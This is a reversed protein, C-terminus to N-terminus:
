AKKRNVFNSVMRSHGKMTKEVKNSNSPQLINYGPIVEQEISFTYGEPIKYISISEGNKLSVVATGKKFTVSSMVGSSEYTENVGKSNNYLKITYNATVTQNATVGDQIVNTIIITGTSKWKAKVVGNNGSFKVENEGILSSDGFITWGGFIYGDKVPTKLVMYEGEHNYVVQKSKGEYKGGNADITLKSDMASNIQWIAKLTISKKTTLNSYSEGAVLINGSADEWYQFQYRFKTFKCEPLTVKQGFTAKVSKMTGKGGNKSFSITYTNPKWTATYSRNGTSGKKISVNKKASTLDTGTWGVFTYGSRKPTPLSFTKTDASYAYKVTSENKWEGSNLNYDIKYDEVKEWVAVCKVTVDDESTLGSVTEGPQYSKGNIDWEVFSYGKNKFKNKPLKYKKSYTLKVSSMEKSNSAGNGDFKLTYHNQKYMATIKYTKVKRIFANSSIGKWGIFLYGTHEPADQPYSLMSNIEVVKTEFAKKTVDDYFKIIPKEQKYVLKVTKDNKIKKNLDAPLNVSYAARVIDSRGAVDNKAWNKIKAIAADSPKAGYNLTIKYSTDDDTKKTNKGDVITVSVTAPTSAAMVSVSSFLMM